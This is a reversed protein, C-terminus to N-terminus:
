EEVVECEDKGVSFNDGKFIYDTNRIAIVCYSGDNFHGDIEVVDGVKFGCEELTLEEPTKRNHVNTIRIKM